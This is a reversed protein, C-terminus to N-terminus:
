RRKAARAKAKRYTTAKLKRHLETAKTHAAEAVLPITGGFVEFVGVPRGKRHLTGKAVYGTGHDRPCFTATYDADLGITAMGTIIIM